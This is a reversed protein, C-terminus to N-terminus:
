GNHVVLLETTASRATSKGAIISARSLSQMSDFDRYLDRISHHDANSIVIHCGRSRARVLCDHLRVQDGWSFMVQNYKLFGNFNHKVTYPPDVYILDGEEAQDISIEFDRTKIEAGQLIKAVSKFDDDPFIVTAKTGIPVNFENKQNVRYLGNWCTRNLYIFRTAAEVSDKPLLSRQEYYLASCHRKHLVSLREYIDEPHDRIACYTEILAENVDSLVSDVPSLGFYVAGSGLFPEFYRNFTDPLHESLQKTLWRKGGAWKLFPKM